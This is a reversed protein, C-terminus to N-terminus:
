VVFRGIAAAVGSHDVDLTIYDAVQRVEAPANGMAVALGAAELLSIDNLGDGIAIVEGMKMGLFSALAMLAKGKSVEPDIINIFDILGCNICNSAHPSNPTYVSSPVPSPPVSPPYHIIGADTSKISVSNRAGVIATGTRHMSRSTLDPNPKIDPKPAISQPISQQQIPEDVNSSLALSIKTAYFIVALVLITWRSYSTGNKFLM